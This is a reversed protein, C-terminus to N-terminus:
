DRRQFEYEKNNDELDILTLTESTIEKIQYKPKYSGDEKSSFYIIDEKIQFYKRTFEDITPKEFKELLSDEVLVIGLYNRNSYFIISRYNVRTKESDVFEYDEWFNALNYYENQKYENQAVSYSWIRNLTETAKIYDYEAYEDQAQKLYNNVEEETFTTIEDNYHLGKLNNFLSKYDEYNEVVEFTTGNYACYLQYYSDYGTNDILYNSADSSLHQYNVYYINASLANAAKKLDSLFGKKTPVRENYIAFFIKKNSQLNNILEDGSIEILNYEKKECGTLIIFLSIIILLVIRKKM